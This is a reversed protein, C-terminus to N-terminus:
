SSARSAGSSCRSASSIRRTSSSALSTSEGEGQEGDGKAVQQFIGQAVGLAMDVDLLAARHEGDAVRRCCRRILDETVAAAEGDDLADAFLQAPLYLGSQLIAYKACPQRHDSGFLERERRSLTLACRCWGSLLLAGSPARNKPQHLDPIM